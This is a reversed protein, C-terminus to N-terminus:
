LNLRKLTKELSVMEITSDGPYYTIRYYRLIDAQTDYFETDFVYREEGVIVAASAM